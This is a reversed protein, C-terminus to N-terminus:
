DHIIRDRMRFLPSETHMTPLLSYDINYCGAQAIFQPDEAAICVSHYEKLCDHDLAKSRIEKLSLERINGFSVHIFPCPLVEGYPTLYCKEKFAPCGRIHWNSEFDTRVHTFQRLYSNLKLRDQHDLLYDVNGMWKGAPVALNLSLDAGLQSSLAIMDTFDKSNLNQHTVTASMLTKLGLRRALRLVDVAKRWSGKQARFNDHIEESASDVSVCIIDGGAAKYAVLFEKDVFWGNTQISILNKQPKFQKIVDLLEPYILPEGGTFHFALVGESMAESSFRRYEELNLTTAGNKHLADSSCHMCSFNCTYTLAIDMFRLKNYGNRFSRIYGYVLRCLLLPKRAAIGGIIRLNIFLNRAVNIKAM